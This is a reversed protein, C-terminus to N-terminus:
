VTVSWDPIWSEERVAVVSADHTVEKNGLATFPRSKGQGKVEILNTDCLAVEAFEDLLAAACRTRTISPM